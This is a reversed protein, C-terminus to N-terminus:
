GPQGLALDARHSEAATKCAAFDDTSTLTYHRIGVHYRVVIATAVWCGMPSDPPGIKIVMDAGPHDGPLPIGILRHLGGIACTSLISYPGRWPAGGGCQGPRDAVEVVTLVHPGSYGAGGVVAVQDIVAGSNGAQVPVMMGWARAQPGLIAGGSPAYVTLPGSGFGIPGWLLFAVTLFIVTVV